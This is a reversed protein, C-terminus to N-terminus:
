GDEGLVAATEAMLTATRYASATAVVESPAKSMGPDDAPADPDLWDGFQFGTDWLGDPSSRTPSRHAHAGDHAPLRRATDARARLRAVAGVAGLGRRRGVGRHRRARSVRHRSVEANPVVVPVTGNPTAQRELETDVLWDALFSEVDGLFAATPAFVALDGTWGLREDRQPCDTPVSLFNGRM